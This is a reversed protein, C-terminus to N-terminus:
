KPVTSIFMIKFFYQSYQFAISERGPALVPCWKQFGSRLFSPFNEFFMVPNATITCFDATSATKIMWVSIMTALYQSKSYNHGQEWVHVMNMVLRLSSSCSYLEFKQCYYSLLGRSTEFDSDRSLIRKNNVRPCWKQIWFPLFPRLPYLYFQSSEDKRYNREDIGIYAKIFLLLEYLYVPIKLM